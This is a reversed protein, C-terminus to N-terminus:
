AARFLAAHGSAPEEASARILVRLEDALLTAGHEIERERQTRIVRM